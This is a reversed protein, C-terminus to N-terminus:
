DIGCMRPIKKEMQTLGTPPHPFAVPAGVDGRVGVPQLPGGKHQGVIQYAQACQQFIMIILM